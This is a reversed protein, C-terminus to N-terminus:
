RGGRQFSWIDETGKIDLTCFGNASIGENLKDLNFDGNEDIVGHKKQEAKSTLQTMKLAKYIYMTPNEINAKESAERIRNVLCQSITNNKLAADIEKTARANDKEADWQTRLAPRPGLNQTRLKQGPTQELPQTPPTEIITDDPLETKDALGIANGVASNKFWGWLGRNARPKVAEEEKRKKITEDDRFPDAVINWAGAFTNGLSGWFGVDYDKGAKIDATRQKEAAEREAVSKDDMGFTEGLASNCTYGWVGRNSRPKAAEAAKRANVEKEDRFPDAVFNWASTFTNGVSGLFSVDYDKGANIDATRQKEAAEREAVSKDDLGLTEGLASNCTYGWVGRNAMPRAAEAAKRENVEKEDRFPDAILNWGSGLTNWCAGWFGVAEDNEAM